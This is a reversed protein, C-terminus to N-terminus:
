RTIASGASSGTTSGAPSGSPARRASPVGVAARLETEPWTLHAAVLLILGLAGAGAVAFAARGTLDAVLGAVLFAVATALNFGAAAFANVRGRWAAPTVLNVTVMIPVLFAQFVGAVLWLAIALHIPFDLGAAILPLCSLLIMPRIARVAAATSLRSVYIAGIATGAPIAAMLVGGLGARGHEAAYALAVGEPAILFLAAGWGLLVFSRRVPDTFILRAGDRLDRAVSWGHREAPAPRSRMGVLLIGYSVVFTAADILFALRAGSGYVVLGAAALGVVQNVQFFVRCLATGALYDQPDPLVDPMVAARAADFPAGFIEIALLLGFPVWLSVDEVTAFALAAVLVARGLDCALLVRKRPLRDALGGFVASGVIGPVYGAVFAAAAYFASETRDLVLGAVAVRAFHDGVESVIQATLLASFERTRLLRRYSSREIGGGTV